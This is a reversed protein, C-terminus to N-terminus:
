EGEELCSKSAFGDASPSMSASVFKLLSVKLLLIVDGSVVAAQGRHVLSEGMSSLTPSAVGEIPSATGM